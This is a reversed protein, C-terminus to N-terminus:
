SGSDIAESVSWDTTSINLRYALPPVLGAADVALFDVEVELLDTGIENSTITRVTVKEFRSTATGTFRSILFGTVVDAIQPDTVRERPPNGLPSAPTASLSPLSTARLGTSTREIEVSYFFTGTPAYGGAQRGLQDAAVLVTWRDPGAKEISWVATHSVYWTGPEFGALDPVYGLYPILVEEAGEGARTLLTSVYMEAFGELGGPVDDSNIAVTLVRGLLFGILLVALAAGGFPGVQRLWRHNRIPAPTELPRPEDAAVMPPAVTSVPYNVARM